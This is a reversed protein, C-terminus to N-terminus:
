VGSEVNNIADRPESGQGIQSIIDVLSRYVKLEDTTFSSRVLFNHIPMGWAGDIGIRVKAGSAIAVMANFTNQHVEFDVLVTAKFNSVKAFFNRKPLGILNASYLDPSMSHIGTKRSVETCEVPVVVLMDNKNFIGSLESVMRLLVSNTVIGEPLTIIVKNEGCLSGPFDFGENKLRSSKLSILLHQLRDKLKM